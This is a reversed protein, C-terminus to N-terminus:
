ITRQVRRKNRNEQEAQMFIGEIYFSKGGAENAETIINVQENIETILRM